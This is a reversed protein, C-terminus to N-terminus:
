INQDIPVLMSTKDAINTIGDNPHLHCSNMDAKGEKINKDIDLTLM